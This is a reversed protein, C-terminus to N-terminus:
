GQRLDRRRRWFEQGLRHRRDDWQGSLKWMERRYQELDGRAEPQEALNNKEWSDEELDFLQTAGCAYEILKRRGDSVGRVADAYVLYLSDRGRDGTEWCPRLSRGEVSEPVPMRCLDCLTPFLDFLYVLADSTVGAPVEPGSVLLPVRVSHEYVNQKGMLGHQGVALGNDGAVVIITDSLDGVSELTALLRGLEADLHSIMAYYEALHRRVESPQRPFGALLEDRCRLAGTDIVHEARFNEPLPLSEPDYLQRFAEPMTRPDHPALLAVYLFFPRQRDRERLFDCAADVFLETSHRGAHIHDCARYEVQNSHMPDPVRPLRAAYEGTPDFHYAPVNWHDSMGGFFIEDGGTFSRAFAMRGNHWKGIGHCEYGARRFTEGLTAHERPIEQGVDDLHFLSRGTHLMARSPMCVAGSTGGPIHARRFSVGRAVLRDLNPTRILPNGLAGITDFRQDDTLFFLVNPTTAM